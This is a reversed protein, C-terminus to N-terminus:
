GRGTGLILTLEPRLDTLPLLASVHYEAHEPPTTSGLGLSKNLKAVLVQDTSLTACVVVPESVLQLARNCAM